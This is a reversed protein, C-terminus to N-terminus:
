RNDLPPAPLNAWVARGVRRVREEGMHCCDGPPHAVCCSVTVPPVRYHAKCNPCWYTHGQENLPPFYPM